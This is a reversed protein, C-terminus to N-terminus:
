QVSAEVCAAVTRYEKPLYWLVSANEPSVNDMREATKLKWFANDPHPYIFELPILQNNDWKMKYYLTDEGLLQYFRVLQEQPAFCPNQLKLEPSFSGAGLNFINVEYFAGETILIDKFGDGNVDQLFFGKKATNWKVAGLPQVAREKIAYFRAEASDASQQVLQLHRESPSIMFGYDLMVSASNGEGDVLHHTSSQDKEFNDVKLFARLATEIAQIRLLSDRDINQESVEIVEVETAESVMDVKSHDQNRILVVVILILIASVWFKM